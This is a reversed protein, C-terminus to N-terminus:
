ASGRRSLERRLQPGMAERVARGETSEWDINELFSVSVLEITEPSRADAAEEMIQLVKAAAERDRPKQPENGASAFGTTVFRAVDGMFVHPLVGDYDARHEDYLSRLQPVAAVIREIWEDSPSLPM